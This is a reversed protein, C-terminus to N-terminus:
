NSINYNRTYIGDEGWSDSLYEGPFRPFEWFFPFM